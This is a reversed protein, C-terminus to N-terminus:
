GAFIPFLNTDSSAQTWGGAPIFVATMDGAANFLEYAGWGNSVQRQAIVSPFDHTTAWGLLEAAGDGIAGSRASNELSCEDAAPLQVWLGSADSHPASCSLGSPMTLQLVVPSRLPLANATSRTRTLAPPVVWTIVVWGPTGAANGIGGAGGTADYVVSLLDVAAGQATSGGAGGGRSYGRGGYTGAAGGGYGAGGLGGYNLSTFASGAGGVAAGGFGRGDKVPDGAVYDRGNYQFFTNGINTIGGIGNNGGRGFAEGAPGGNGGRGTGVVAGNGGVGSVGAGGGGGAIILVDTGSVISAGGGGGGGGVNRYGAGGGGVGITLTEGPAASVTATVLAGAGGAFDAGSNITYRPEATNNAGGGGGGSVEVEIETVRDPVTWTGNQGFEFRVSGTEARASSALVIVAVFIGATAALANRRRHPRAEAIRMTAM